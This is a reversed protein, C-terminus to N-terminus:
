IKENYTTTDYKGRRLNEYSFISKKTKSRIAAYEIDELKAGIKM